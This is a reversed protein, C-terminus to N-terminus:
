VDFCSVREECEMPRAYEIGHIVTPTEKCAGVGDIWSELNGLRGRHVRKGIGLCQGSPKVDAWYLRLRRREKREWEVREDYAKEKQRVRERAVDELREYEELKNEREQELERIRARAVEELDQYRKYQRQHENQQQRIRERALEELSQYEELKEDHRSEMERIRARAAEEQSRYRELSEEYKRLEQNHRAREAAWDRRLPDPSLSRDVYAGMFGFIPGLLASGLMLLTLFLFPTSSSNGYGFSKSRQPEVQPEAPEPDKAPLLSAHESSITYFRLFSFQRM